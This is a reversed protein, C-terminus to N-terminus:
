KGGKVTYGKPGLYFMLIPLFILSHLSGIVVLALWMRFYYVEFIKSRTFALVSVGILKTMTIGGLVTGGTHVMAKLSRAERNARVDVSPVLSDNFSYAKAIHVCFEVSLGVCILLNVLSVANLSIGWLAMVGGIDVLTMAVTLIILGAMTFSGLLVSAVVFILALASGILAFTLPVITVYQVFFIYFPSYAFVNSLGSLSDLEKTMRLSSKYAHIYDEQTRLPRHLSRFVSYDIDGKTNTHISTSYPAKGGLPCPDSPSDIWINFYKMFEEGEPFGQMTVEWEKDAYCTECQRSPAFPPCIQSTGKKLRCCDSLDPNLWLLYDDIWSAVPDALTSSNARKREQELVNVLSFEDCTSFRGCLQQQGKRSTVNLDPVVFYVPPGVNLYNSLDDFYQVLYSESPIALRQDLGLTIKPLLSFSVASVAVFISLIVKKTSRKKLVLHACEEMMKTSFTMNEEQEDELRIPSTLRLFFFIDARGDEKRRQDLSLLSVFFTLQLVANLLVALACYLAFNRVAPMSVIGAILFCSVQCTASLLISPGIRSMTSAVRVPISESGSKLEHSILFINDVGIALVLFPIVEAIILTSKLGILAFIGVSTFVSLLVICIGLLGLGLKTKVFMTKNLHSVNRSLAASAYAFMALYSMVIVKIDTNTSKNLEKELSIGTSFSLTLNREQAEKQVELLKRELATEWLTTDGSVDGNLLITVVISKYSSTSDGGGFLLAPQLPQQFPPLCTVPSNACSEIQSEWRLPSLRSSDGDFYQTFSEVACADGLPKFCLDSIGVPSETENNYVSVGIIEQEKEFWWQVTEYSLVPGTENVLFIQQPRYFPGFTEDYLLKQKYEKANPSVWLQVPDTELKTFVACCSLAVSVVLCVVAVTKAHVSCFYGLQYFKAQLFNNVSYTQQKDTEFSPQQELGDDTLLSAKASRRSRAIAALGALACMHYVFIVSLSYCSLPGVKCRRSGKVAPLDPCSPSCDACACKYETDNCNRMTGDMPKVDKPFDGDFDSTFKHNIQFPSGGLLPKKDGLFKLFERYNKAGGGILDMAYGNSASFKVEKCSDYFISAFDDSVYHDLEEVIDKNSSSRDTKTVNVFESQNPSCTFQCFFQYFNEKCAPCSAILSRAKALNSKLNLLQDYDCCITDYSEWSEGCVEVM